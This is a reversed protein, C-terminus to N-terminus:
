AGTKRVVWLEIPRVGGEYALGRVRRVVQLQRQVEPPSMAFMEPTIVMVDPWEEAPRLGLFDDMLIKQLTGGQYYELSPVHWGREKLEPYILVGASRQQDPGALAGQQAFVASLRRSVDMFRASPLYWGYATGVLVLFGAGLWALALRPRRWQMLVWVGLTYVVGMISLTVMAAYPLDEFGTGDRAALWVASPILGVPLAWLLVAWRFAGQEFIRYQGRLCRVIADATLLALFPYTGLMYHPLKTKMFLEHFLWPGLIAAVAFRVQPLQRHRWAVVAAVPALLSWPFFTAWMLVFYWGFFGSHEDLAQDMHARATGLVEVIWQPERQQVAWLWPGVIAAAAILTLVLVGLARAGARQVRAPDRLTVPIWRRLDFLALVLLTMAPALFVIPGKTLGGTALGGAIILGHWWSGRGRYYDLLAFQVPIVSCMLVADTLCMKGAAITLACSGFIFVTWLARRPGASRWVLGALLALALTTAMSAVLRPAFERSGLWRMPVSQLWYVLPPKEARLRGDLYRPVAYDGSQIMKLTCQAYWPEDCDWLAVRGNGVLYLAACALIAM